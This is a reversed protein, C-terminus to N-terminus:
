EINARKLCSYARTPLDLDGIDSIPRQHVYNREPKIEVEQQEYSISPLNEYLDDIGRIDTDKRVVQEIYRQTTAISEHDLYKACM